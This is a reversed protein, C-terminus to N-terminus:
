LTDRVAEIERSTLDFIFKNYKGSENEKFTLRWELYPQVFVTDSVPLFRIPVLRKNKLNIGNERREVEWIDDSINFNGTYASYADDSLEIEGLSKDAKYNLEQLMLQNFFESTLTGRSQTFYFAMINRGPFALAATGASGGHGFIPLKEEKEPHHYLEWHLGYGDFIKGPSLAKEVTEEKLFRKSGAKGKNMWMGLFKAYDKETTFIGGSARFFPPNPKDYRDHLKEFKGGQWHFYNSLKERDPEEEGLLCYSDEMGLPIFLRERIFEEVQMGSVNTVILGLTASHGDSYHYEEGVPYEPGHDALDEVAEELNDYLTISGKPYAPQKFGATHRLLQKITIERCEENKFADVYKSAKDDLSLKGEEELMLISTGVFPKTMSHIRYLQNKKLPTNNGIDDLGYAKHILPKGDKLILLEAGVISGNDVWQQVQNGVDVAWNPTNVAKKSSDDVNCSFISFAVSLILFLLLKKLTKHYAVTSLQYIM